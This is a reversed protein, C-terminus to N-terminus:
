CLPSPNKYLFTAVFGVKRTKRTRESLKALDAHFSYKLLAVRVERFRANVFHSRTVQINRWSRSRSLKSDNWRAQPLDHNTSDSATSRAAFNNSAGMGHETTESLRIHLRLARQQHRSREISRFACIWLTYSGCIRQFVWLYRQINLLKTNRFFTTSM